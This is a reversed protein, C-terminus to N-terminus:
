SDWAESYSAGSAAMEAMVVPEFSQEQEPQEGEKELDSNGSDEELPKDDGSAHAAGTHRYDEVTYARPKVNASLQIMWRGGRRVTRIKSQKKLKSLTAKLRNQQGPTHAGREYYFAKIEQARYPRAALWNIIRDAEPWESRANTQQCNICGHNQRHSRTFYYNNIRSDAEIKERVSAPVIDAHFDIREPAPSAEIIAANKNQRSWYNKRWEKIDAHDDKEIPAFDPEHANLTLGYGAENVSEGSEDVTSVEGSNNLAIAAKIYRRKLKKEYDENIEENNAKAAALKSFVMGFLRSHDVTTEGARACRSLAEIIRGKIATRGFIAGSLYLAEADVTEAPLGNVNDNTSDPFMVAPSAPRTDLGYAVPYDGRDEAIAAAEASNASSVESYGALASVSAGGDPFEKVEVANNKVGYAMMRSGYEAPIGFQRRAQEILKSEDAHGGHDTVSERVFEAFCTGLTHAVSQVDM